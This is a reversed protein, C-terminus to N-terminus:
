IMSAAFSAASAPRPLCVLLMKLFLPKLNYFTSFEKINYLCILEKMWKDKALLQIHSVHLDELSLILGKDM